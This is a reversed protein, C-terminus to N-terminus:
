PQVEKKNWSVATELRARLVPIWRDYFGLLLMGATMGALYVLIGLSGTATSALAPGPCIGTLGWGIGFLAAGTLLRGDIDRRTPVLFREGLLPAKRRFSLRFLVFTAVVASGMVLMLDPEWRGFFDLFAVIKHPQTMGAVALGAAMLVGVLFSAIHM